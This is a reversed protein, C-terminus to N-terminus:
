WPRSVGTRGTSVSGLATGDGRVLPAAGPRLPASGRVAVVGAVACPSGVAQWELLRPVLEPM